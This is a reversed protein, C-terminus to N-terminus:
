NLWLKDSKKANCSFCLCQLNEKNDSGGLKIPIKHDVSLRNFLGCIRCGNKSEEIWWLRLKGQTRSMYIRDCRKKKEKYYDKGLQKLSRKVALEKARPNQRYRSENERRKESKIWKINSQKWSETNKHKKLTIKRSEKKCEISCLKQNFHNRKFENNCIKCIM